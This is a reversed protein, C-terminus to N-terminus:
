NTFLQDLQLATTPITYISWIGDAEPSAQHDRSFFFSQGDPSFRPSAEEAETNILPGLNRAPSWHEGEKRSVYIDEGGAGGEAEYANFLLYQGDPSLVPSSTWYNKGPFLGEIRVSSSFQGDVLQSQFIDISSTGRLMSAYFFTRGDQTYLFNENSSPWEEGQQQIQNIPEPLPIPNTWGSDTRSAQWINMDFNGQSEQGSVPRSSGFYVRQGDPSLCAYEDRDTSFPAIRANGWGTETRSALWIKQPEGEKRRTFFLSKGDPAFCVDFESADTSSVIGEAFIIAKHVPDAAAKKEQCALLWPLLLIFSFHSRFM